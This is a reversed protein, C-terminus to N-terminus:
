CHVQIVRIIINFAESHPFTGRAIVKQTTKHITVEDEDIVTVEIM